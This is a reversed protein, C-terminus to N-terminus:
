SANKEDFAPRPTSFAGARRAPPRFTVRLQSQSWLLRPQVDKGCKLWILDSM